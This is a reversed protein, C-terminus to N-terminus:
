FEDGFGFERQWVNHSSLMCCFVLYFLTALFNSCFPVRSSAIFSKSEGLLTAIGETGVNQAINERLITADYICTPSSQHTCYVLMTPNCHGSATNYMINVAFHWPHHHSSFWYPRLSIDQKKAM